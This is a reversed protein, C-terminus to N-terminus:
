RANRWCGICTRHNQRQPPRHHSDRPYFEAACATQPAAIRDHLSLATRLAGLLASGDYPKEIFDVAGQKTAEIALPVDAHGSIVIVPWGVKLSKLRRLLEIGDIEPMRVDTIVCGTEIALIADLFTRASDYPRAAFRASELLFALSQRAADDDDIVYIVPDSAMM